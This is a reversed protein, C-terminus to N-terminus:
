APQCHPCWWTRRQEPDARVEERVRIITGCRLCPRGARGAVWHSEGRVQRGTTVQYMGPVTASIRLARAALAVLADLDVDRVPAFPHVGRLFAVENVWLNGLGALNRQDLLAVVLARDPERALRRVAERADWDARLPDPGLHGIVDGERRTPFLEVVPMDIGWATRGDAFRLRVRVTAVVNRPLTRGPRTISWSGQMRLHTHLTTADDFRTLLHKGHTDIETVTVGTLRHGAQPGSRLEGEVVQGGVLATRLRAALRHVSDGEPM